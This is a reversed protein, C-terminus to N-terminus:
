AMGVKPSFMQFAQMATEEQEGESPIKAEVLKELFAPAIELYEKMIPPTLSLTPACKEVLFRMLIALPLPVDFEGGGRRLIAFLTQQTFYYNDYLAAIAIAKKMNVPINTPLNLNEEVKEVTEEYEFFEFTQMLMEARYLDNTLRVEEKTLNLKVTEM